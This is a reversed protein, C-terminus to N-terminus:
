TLRKQKDRKLVEKLIKFLQTKLIKYEKLYENIKTMVNRHEKKYLREEEPQDIGDVMIKLNKDHKKIAIILSNNQKQSTKLADILYSNKEFGISDILKLASSRILDEFFLQEKKIFELEVLWDQSAKHLEDASYWEMIDHTKM